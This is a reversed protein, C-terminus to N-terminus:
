RSPSAPFRTSISNIPDVPGNLPGVATLAESTLTPFIGISALFPILHANHDTIPFVGNSTGHPSLNFYEIISIISFNITPAMKMPDNCQNTSNFYNTKRMDIIVCVKLKNM